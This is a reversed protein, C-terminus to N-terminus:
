AHNKPEGFLFTTHKISNLVKDSHAKYGAFYGIVYAGFLGGVCILMAKKSKKDEINEEM